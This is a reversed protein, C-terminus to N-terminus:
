CTKEWLGQLNPESSKGSKLFPYNKTEMNKLNKAEVNKLNKAEMHKM